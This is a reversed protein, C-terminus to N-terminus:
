SRAPRSSTRPRSRAGRPCRPARRRAPRRRRGPDPRRRPGGARDRAARSALGPGRRRRQGGRHAALFRCLEVFGARFGGCVILHEPDAAAGRSRALHTALTERLQPLGRPDPEGLTAFPAGRWAARCHACGRTPPSAPWTPCGPGCTTPSRPTCRGRRSACASSSPRPSACPRARACRSTARPRSSGTPRPSSAARSASRPRSRGPPRCRRARPSGGPRSARACSASSRSTCRSIVTAISRTLQDERPPCLQCQLESWSRRLKRHM